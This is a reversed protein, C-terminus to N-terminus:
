VTAGTKRFSFKECRLRFLTQSPEEMKMPNKEKQSGKVGKGTKVRIEGKIVILKLQILRQSNGPNCCSGYFSGIAYPDFTCLLFNRHTHLIM